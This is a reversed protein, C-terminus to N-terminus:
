KTFYAQILLAMVAGFIIGLIGTLWSQMSSRKKANELNNAVTVIKGDLETKVETIQKERESKEEVLQSQTAFTPILIDLKQDIKNLMKEVGSLRTEVAVLREIESMPISQEM